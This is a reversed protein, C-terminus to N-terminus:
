GPEVGLAPLRSQAHNLVRSPHEMGEPWHLPSCRSAADLLSFFIIVFKRFVWGSRWGFHHPAAADLAVGGIGMKVVAVGTTKSGPPSSSLGATGGVGEAHVENASVSWRRCCVNPSWGRMSM